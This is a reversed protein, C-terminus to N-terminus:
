GVVEPRFSLKNAFTQVVPFFYIQIEISWLSGKYPAYVWIDSKRIDPDPFDPDVWNKHSSLRSWTCFCIQDFNNGFYSIGPRVLAYLTRIVLFKRKKPRWKSVGDQILFRFLMPGLPWSIQPVHLFDSRDSVRFYTFLRALDVCLFLFLFLCFFFNRILFGKPQLWLDIFKFYNQSFILLVLALQCRFSCQFVSSFSTKVHRSKDHRSM